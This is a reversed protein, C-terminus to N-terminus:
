YYHVYLIKIVSFDDCLLFFFTSYYYFVNELHIFSSLFQNFFYKCSKEPRIHSWGKFFFILPESFSAKHKTFKSGLLFTINFCTKKKTTEKDYYLIGYSSSSPPPPDFSLYSLHFVHYFQFVFMFFEVIRKSVQCANSLKAKWGFWVKLCDVFTQSFFLSLPLYNALILCWKLLVIYLCLLLWVDATKLCWSSMQFSILIFCLFFM